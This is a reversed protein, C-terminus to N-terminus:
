SALLWTFLSPLVLEHMRSFHAENGEAEGRLMSRQTEPRPSNCDTTFMDCVYFSTWVAHFPPALRM